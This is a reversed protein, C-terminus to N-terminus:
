SKKEREPGIKQWEGKVRNKNIRYEDQLFTKDRYKTNCNGEARCKRKYDKYAKIEEPTEAFREVKAGKEIRETTKDDRSIEINPVTIELDTKIGELPIPEMEIPKLKPITEKPIKRKPEIEPSSKPEKPSVYRMGDVGSAYGGANLPSKQFFPTAFKSSSM